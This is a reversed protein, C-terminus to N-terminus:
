FTKKEFEKNVEASVHVEWGALQDIMITRISGNEKKVSVHAEGLDLLQGVIADGAKPFFSVISDPPIQKKLIKHM